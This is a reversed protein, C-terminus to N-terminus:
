GHRIIKVKAVVGVDVRVEVRVWTSVQMLMAGFINMMAQGDVSPQGGGGVGAGDGAGVGVGSAGRAASGPGGARQERVLFDHASAGTPGVKGLADEFDSRRLPRPQSLNPEAPEAPEAAAKAGGKAGGKTGGSAAAAVSHAASADVFPPDLPVTSSSAGSGGSGGSAEAAALERIPQLLAARCLEKLDSGSYGETVGALDECLADIRGATREHQLLLMLIHKRQDETPLGIEFSRPLRRLIAQDIDYPRNTAGLVMVPSAPDTLLGDWHTM